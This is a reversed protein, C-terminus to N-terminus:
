PRGKRTPHVRSLQVAIALLASVVTVILAANLGIRVSYAARFDSAFLFYASVASAIFLGMLVQLLRTM